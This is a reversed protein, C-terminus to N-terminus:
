TVEHVTIVVKVVHGGLPTVPPVTIHLLLVSRSLSDTPYQKAFRNEMFLFFLQRLNKIVM